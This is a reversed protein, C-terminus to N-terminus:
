AGADVAEMISDMFLASLAGLTRNVAEIEDCEGPVLTEGIDTAVTDGAALFRAGAEFREPLVVVNVLADADFARRCAARLATAVAPWDEAVRAADPHTAPLVMQVVRRFYDGPRHGIDRAHGLRGTGVRLRTHLRAMGTRVLATVTDDFGPTETTEVGNAQGSLTDAFGPLLGSEFVRRRRFAGEMRIPDLGKQAPATEVRIVEADLGVPTQESWILDSKALGAQALLIQLRIAADAWAAKVVASMPDRTQRDCLCVSLLDRRPQRFPPRHRVLVGEHLLRNAILEPPLILESLIADPLDELQTTVRIGAVGGEKPRVGSRKRDSVSRSRQRRRRLRFTEPFAPEAEFLLRCLLPEPERVLLPRGLLRATQGARREAQWLAAGHLRVATEAWFGQGMRDGEALLLGVEAEFRTAWGTVQAREGASLDAAGFLEAAGCSASARRLVPEAVGQRFAATAGAWFRTGGIVRAMGVAEGARRFGHGWVPSAAPAPADEMAALARALSPTLPVHREAFAAILAAARRGTADEGVAPATGRIRLAIDAM